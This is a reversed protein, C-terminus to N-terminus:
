LAHAGELSELASKTVVLSDFYLVDYTNVRQVPVVKVWSLNSSARSLEETVSEVILLASVVDLRDMLDVLERTKPADLKIEDMVIMSDTQIRYALANRLAKRSAKKNMKKSFDRPKPGFVVGGGRLIPSRITGQRARGTGKQRFPKRGGGRVESRGKTSATGRRAGSGAAVAAQHILPDNVPDDWWSALDVNGVVEKKSNIIEVKPM